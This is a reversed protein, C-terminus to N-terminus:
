IWSSKTSLIKHMKLSLVKLTFHHFLKIKDIWETLLLGKCILSLHTFVNDELIDYDYNLFHQTITIPLYLKEMCNGTNWLVVM